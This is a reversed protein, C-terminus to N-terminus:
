EMSCLLAKTNKLHVKHALCLLCSIRQSSRPSHAISWISSSLFLFSFCVRSPSDTSPSVKSGSAHMPHKKWLSKMSHIFGRASEGLGKSPSMKDKLISSKTSSGKDATGISEKLHHPHSSTSEAIQRRGM